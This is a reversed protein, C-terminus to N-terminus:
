QPILEILDDVTNLSLKNSVWEKIYQASESYTLTFMSKVVNCIKTSRYLAVRTEMIDGLTFFVITIDGSMIHYIKQSNEMDLKCSEVCVIEKSCYNDLFINM